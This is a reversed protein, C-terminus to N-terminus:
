LKEQENKCYDIIKDLFDKKDSEHALHYLYYHITSTTWDVLKDLEIM